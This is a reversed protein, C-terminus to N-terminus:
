KQKEQGKQNQANHTKKEVGYSLSFFINSTGNKKEVWRIYVESFFLFPFFGSLPLADSRSKM